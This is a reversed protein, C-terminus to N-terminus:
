PANTISIRYIRHVASVPDTYSLTTDVGSTVSYLNSWSTGDLLNTTYDLRYAAGNTAAWTIVLPSNVVMGVFVPPMFAMTLNTSINADALVIPGNTGLPSIIQYNGLPLFGFQFLGNTESLTCNQVFDNFNEGLLCVETNSGAALLGSIEAGQLIAVDDIYWGGATLNNTNSQLTFRVYLNSDNGVANLSVIVRRWKGQTNAANNRNPILPITPRNVGSVRTNIDAPTSPRIVDVRVLDNSDALDLWEHFMLFHANSNGAHPTNTDPIKLNFIPSYLEMIADSPYFGNLQTGYVWRGSYAYPPASNSSSSSPVPIGLRWVDRVDHADGYGIPYRHYWMNTWDPSLADVGTIFVVRNSNPTEFPIQTEDAIVYYENTLTTEIPWGQWTFLESRWAENRENYSVVELDAIHPRQAWPLAGQWAGLRKLNYPVTEVGNSNVLANIRPDRGAAPGGLEHEQGDPVLDRDTDDGGPLTGTRGGFLFVTASAPIRRDSGDEIYYPGFGFPDPYLGGNQAYTMSGFARPSPGRSQEGGPDVLTWRNGTSQNNLIYNQFDRYFVWTDNYYNKGDTGGFLVFRDRRTSRYDSGAGSTYFEGGFYAFMAGGRPSPKEGDQLATIETWGGEVAETVTNTVGNTDVLYNTAVTSPSYVWLDNLPRNQADFGGFMLVDGYREDYVMSHGWRAPPSVATPIKQWPVYRVRSNKNPNGPEIEEDEDDSDGSRLRGEYTDGFVQRGDLGGFLVLRNNKHAYVMGFSKRQSPVSISNETQIRTGIGWVPPQKYDPIWEVRLRSNNDRFLAYDSVGNTELLIFGIARGQWNGSQILENVIPTVDIELLESGPNAIQVGYAGIDTVYNTFVVDLPSSNFQRNLRTIPHDFEVRVTGQVLPTGGDNYEKATRDVNDYEAIITFVTGTDPKRSVDLRLGAYAIEDCPFYFPFKSFRVGAARNSIILTTETRDPDSSSANFYTATYTGVPIENTNQYLRGFGATGNTYFTSGLVNNSYTAVYLDYYASFASQDDDVDNLENIRDRDDTSKYWLMGMPEPFQYENQDNWGGIFYTMDYSSEKFGFNWPRNKPEGFGEGDENWFKDFPACTKTNYYGHLLVAGFDSLGSFIGQYRPRTTSPTVLTEVSRRWENSRINFEWVDTYRDVGDVGGMVILKRGDLIPIATDYFRNPAYTGDFKRSKREFTPNYVMPAGWRAPPLPSDATIAVKRWYPRSIYDASPWVLEWLDNEAQDYHNTATAVEWEVIFHDMIANTDTVAWFGDPQMYLVNRVGALIQPQNTAFNHFVFPEGTVSFEYDGDGLEDYVGLAVNTESGTLLAQVRTLEEYDSIVALHGLVNTDTPHPTAAAIAMADDWRCTACAFIAYDARRVSQVEGWKGTVAVGDMLRDGDTDQITPNAFLDHHEFGDVVGDGDTDAIWPHTTDGIPSNTSFTGDVRFRINYELENWLGDKDVDGSPSLPPFRTLTSGNDTPVPDVPHLGDEVEYGDPMGDGDTDANFPDTSYDWVPPNYSFPRTAFNWGVPAYGYWASYFNPFSTPNNGYLADRVLYEQLNSLGDGDPDEDGDTPDYPNLTAGSPRINGYNDLVEFGDPMGDGDTDWDTPGDINGDGDLDGGAWMPFFGGDQIGDMDKDWVERGDLLYDGDTDPNLPDTLYVLVEEYDGLFDADTDRLRPSTGALFEALNILGDGDVDLFADAPSRPNLGFKYEWGDPMYDGDTDAKGPNTWDNTNAIGDVGLFEKYNILDDSDPDNQTDSNDLLSIAANTRYLFEFGDWMGDGDTDVIHPQSDAFFPTGLVHGVSVARNSPFTTVNTFVVLAPEKTPLTLVPTSIDGVIRDGNISAVVGTGAGFNNVGALYDGVFLAPVVPAFQLVNTALTTYAYRNTIGDFGVENGDALADGDSDANFINLRVGFLRFLNFEQLNSLGDSDPDNDRHFLFRNTYSEIELVDGVRDFDSDAEYLVFLTSNTVGSFVDVPRRATARYGDKVVAVNHSGPRLRNLEIFSSIFSQGEVENTSVSIGNVMVAFNSIANGFPDKAEIRLHGYAGGIEASTFNVDARGGIPATVYKTTIREFTGTPVLTVEHLGALVGVVAPTLNTLLRGDISVRYPRNPETTVFVRAAAQNTAIIIKTSDGEQLDVSLLPYFPLNTSAYVKYSGPALGTLFTPAVNNTLWDPFNALLGPNTSTVYDVFAPASTSGNWISLQRGDVFTPYTVGAVNPLSIGLRPTGQGRELEFYVNTQAGATLLSVIGFASVSEREYVGPRFGNGFAYQNTFLLGDYFEDVYGEASAKVYYNGIPLGAIRYSGDAATLAEGFVKGPLVYQHGNVRNTIGGRGMARVTAGQVARGNNDRVWGPAGVVTGEYIRVDDVWWGRYSNNVDNLISFLFRVQVNSKGAFASADGIRNVWRATANTQNINTVGSLGSVVTSINVWNTNPLSRAQVVMQDFQPETEYYETWAVFLNSVSLAQNTFTPSQLAMAVAPGLNYTANTDTGTPDYAARYATNTSRDGFFVISLGGTTPAPEVTSLHWMNFLSPASIAYSSWASRTGSTAEFTEFILNNYAPTAGLPNIGLQVSDGDSLFDNNSDAKTPSTLSTNIEYGDDLGDGDSDAQAPNSQYVNVETGDTISDGDSDANRPDSGYQFEQLNTLGDSDLDGTADAAIVPNLGNIIEWGDPIGDLDTDYATPNPGVPLAINTIACSAGAFNVWWEFEEYNSAGDGDPDANPLNEATGDGSATTRVNDLGNDIPSIFVINTNSISISNTKNVNNTSFTWEWGDWMGDGDTDKVCPETGAALELGNALCDSDNDGVGTVPGASRIIENAEFLGNTDGARVGFCYSLNPTLGSVTYTTVNTVTAILNSFVNGSDCSPTTGCAFTQTGRYIRYIITTSIDDVAPLWGLAVTGNTGGLATQLGSFTPASRDGVITYTQVEQVGTVSLTNAFAVVPLGAPDIVVDPVAFNEFTKTIGPMTASKNIDVWNTAGVTWRRALITREEDNTGGQWVVTLNNNFAVGIDVTIPREVLNTAASIGPFTQSGGIASWSGNYRAAYVQYSEYIGPAAGYTQVWALALNNAGPGAAIKPKELYPPSDSPSINSWSAGNWQLVVIGDPNTEEKFALVPNGVGNIAMSLDTAIKTATPTPVGNTHSGALGTWNTGNWRAVFVRSVNTAFGAQLWAVVPSGDGMVGVVPRTADYGNTNMSVGYGQASNGLEVWDAGDYKRLFVRQNTVASVYQGQIGEEWAVYVNQGQVAISPYESNELTRSIGSGLDLSNRLAYWQDELRKWQGLESQDGFPGVWRRVYIQRTLNSYTGATDMDHSYAVIPLGNTDLAVSPFNGGTRGHRGIGKQVVLAYDQPGDAVENGYVRITYTGSGGPINVVEVNNFPDYYAPDPSSFRYSTVGDADFLNGRYIAGNPGFVILDLNNVLQVANGPTGPKDTWALVIKLGGENAGMTIQQSYTEDTQLPQTQTQDLMIVADSPHIRPGDVSRSVDIVGWGDEIIDWNEYWAPIGYVLNNVPKAGAIMTAKMLAPSPPFSLTNTLYQYVLAASGAGVPTAMSTGNFFAYNTGSNVNGFRYDSDSFDDAFDDPSTDRSQISLVFSGPAVLDPKIRLDTPTAPGRSSYSAIQWDSDSHQDSYYPNPDSGFYIGMINNAYRPQELAGMTIVNKANGPTGITSATAGKGDANGNGANGASFFVTLQQDGASNTDADRVLQDWMASWTYYEFYDAGWSNNVIRAGHDYELQAQEEDTYSNFDELMVLHARPAIGAFQNTMYPPGDSGPASIVTESLAGNGLISGAVHSGHGVNDGPLGETYPGERFGYYAIRTNLGTSTPLGPTESFGQHRFDVGSDAVGVTVGEGTLTPHAKRLSPVRLRRAALDNMLHMEITPEVWQVSDMKLIQQLQDTSAKITVVQRKGANQTRTVEVGTASVSNAVDAGSFGMLTYESPEQKDATTEGSLLEQRIEASMKYYPHYPEVAYVGPLNQLETVKDPEITIAYARNPVFHSVKAGLAELAKLDITSVTHDFQVIYATTNAVARYGAPINLGRGEKTLVETDLIAGSLLLAPADRRRLDGMTRRTNTLVHPLSEDTLWSPQMKSVSSAAQKVPLEEQESTLRAEVLKYSKDEQAEYVLARSRTVAELVKELEVDKLSATVRTELKPDAQLELGSVERLKALVDALKADHAELTYHDGTKSLTFDGTGARQDGGRSIGTWAVVVALAALMSFKHLWKM